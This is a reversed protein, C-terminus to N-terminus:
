ASLVKHVESLIARDNDSFALHDGPRWGLRVWPGYHAELVDEIRGITSDDETDKGFVYMSLFTPMNADEGFLCLRIAKCIVGLNEKNGAFERVFKGINEETWDDIEALGNRLKCLTLMPDTM